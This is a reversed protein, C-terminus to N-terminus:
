RRIGGSGRPRRSCSPTRCRARTARCAASGSRRPSRRPSAPRSRANTRGRLHRGPPKRGEARLVFPEPRLDPAEDRLLEPRVGGVPLVGLPERVLDKPAHGLEPQGPQLVRDLVAPAATAVEVIGDEVLLEAAAPGTPER